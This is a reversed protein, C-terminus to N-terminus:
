TPVGRLAIVTMAKRDNPGVRMRTGRARGRGLTDVSKTVARDISAALSLLIKGFRLLRAINAEAGM